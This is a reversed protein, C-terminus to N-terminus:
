TLVLWILLAAVVAVIAVVPWFWSARQRKKQAESRWPPAGTLMADDSPAQEPHVVPRLELRCGPCALALGGTTLMHQWDAASVM